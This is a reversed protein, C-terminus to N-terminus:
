KLKDAVAKIHAPNTGCCGGIINVGLSKIKLASEAYEDASLDYIVKDDVLKPHGANPQAVVPADKLLELHRQALEVYQDMTLDGCNFGIASVGLSSVKEVVTEVSAGMMTKFDEGAVSYSFSVLIPLDSVSKVGEIAAVAEDIAAMTEIIFGDVGGALLGKAQEAYVAKLDDAKLMGVPELFEGSPGIDGLVYGDEDVASKAIAAAALNIKEVFDSYGHRGLTISNAGFTNTIAADSGARIYSDHVSSVIDPSEVCLYDNCKGAEVGRAILETGMAGDLLFLGDNLRTKLNDKAM